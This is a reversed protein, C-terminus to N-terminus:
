SPLEEVFTIALGYHQLSNTSWSSMNSALRCLTTCNSVTIAANDAPSSRLDPWIDVTAQGSGNSNTNTLVMYMYSGIQIIDGAKLINTISHTWGDTVISNGTQSAGNILPTGTGAGQTTTRDPEPVSATGEMGNMKALFAIWDGAEAKTMPPYELDIEWRQGAFVQKQTSFTFVSETIGVNSKMTIKANRPRPSPPLSLPYSFSM